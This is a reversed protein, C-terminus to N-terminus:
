ELKVSLIGIKQVMKQGAEDMGPGISFQLSEVRRIDFSADNDHDFYYPLFSPYPRPLLVTSVPQLEDLKITVEKQADNLEIVKGFAAGNDMVLAVQLKSNKPSLSVADIIITQKNNASALRARIAPSISHRFSYDYITDGELNEIDPTYLEQLEVLYMCGPADSVPLLKLGPKWERVLGEADTCADFLHIPYAAPVVRSQYPKSGTFNWDWPHAKIDGPWTTTKNDQGTVTVWYNLFGHKLMDAPITAAYKGPSVYRIPINRHDSDLWALLETKIPRAPAIISFLLKLDRGEEVEAPAEHLFWTKSVQSAPAAFDNLKVGHWPADTASLLLADPRMLLYTGPGINILGSTTNTKFDNGVNIAQVSFTRGLNQLSIQMPHFMWQVQSVIKEHSNRGFPDAINLPDPLVELRWIGESIKDLFYAGSGQYNVLPSRGCGALQKLQKEDKPPIDSHNTNIYTEPSNYLALDRSYSISVNQFVTDHPYKGFDSYMPIEHFIRSAIMLGLAKGPTYLLNMYHTNYETNFPALFTPDYAFHTALQIGATRFSRAMAPYIYSKNVDAADFEYVIKAGQHRKIVADFPIDYKDVNPLLNGALEKKYGLGTPYWQFTGGDIGGRFYADAFHVAHSINYFIPKQTGTSKMAEVMGKVFSTVDEAKGTHHPENSVEFALIMPEDKYATGTYPNKHNLFQKLYNHQAKIAEAHTLADNKGYKMSFSGTAENPEPWGNGWFAIPTIIANFGKDKLLWLLYDFADLHENQILNGLSDSIETDWVHVRYLDFGLRAFHYVDNQMAEKPDIGMKKATRWAHAFPLTYNVGFGKIEDKGNKNRLVGKQDVIVGSSQPQVAAQLLLLMLLTTLTYHIITKM